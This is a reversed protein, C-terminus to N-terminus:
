LGGSPSTYLIPKFTEKFNNPPMEAGNPWNGVRLDIIKSDVVGFETAARHDNMIGNEISRYLGNTTYMCGQFCSNGKSGIGNWSNLCKPPINLTNPAMQTCNYHPWAMFDNPNKTPDVYEDDLLGLIHGGQEHALSNAIATEGGSCYEADSWDSAGNYVSLQNAAWAHGGKATGAHIYGYSTFKKGTPCGFGKWGIRDSMYIALKGQTFKPMVEFGEALKKALTQFESREKDDNWNAKWVTNPDCPTKGSILFENNRMIIFVFDAGPNGKLLQCGSIIGCQVCANKITSMMGPQNNEKDSNGNELIIGEDEEYNYMDGGEYGENPEAHAKPILFNDFQLSLRDKKEISATTNPCANIYVKAQNSNKDQFKAEVYPVSESSSGLSTTVAQVLGKAVKIQTEDSAKWEAQQTIDEESVTGDCSYKGTAKLQKTKGSGDESLTDLAVYFGAGDDAVAEKQEACQIRVSQLIKKQPDCKGGNNNTGATSCEFEWWNGGYPHKYGILVMVSNILIWCTMALIFGKFAGELSKKALELIKPFPGSIIYLVGAMTIGALAVITLMSGMLWKFINSFGIMLFCLNCDNTCPVLGASSALTPLFLAVLVIFSLIVSQRKM